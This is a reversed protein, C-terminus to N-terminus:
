DIYYALYASYLYIVDMDSVYEDGAESQVTTHNERIVLHYLEIM